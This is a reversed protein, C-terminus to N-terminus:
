FYSGGIDLGLFTYSLIYAIGQDAIICPMDSSALVQSAMQNFSELSFRHSPNLVNTFDNFM